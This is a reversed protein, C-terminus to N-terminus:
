ATLLKKGQGWVNKMQLGLERALSIGSEGSGLIELIQRTM